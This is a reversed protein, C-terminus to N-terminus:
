AHAPVGGRDNLAAAEGNREGIDAYIGLAADLARAAAPYDGTAKWIDGM